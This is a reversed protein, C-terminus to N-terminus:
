RLGLQCAFAEVCFGGGARGGCGGWREGEGADGADEAARRVGDVGREGRGVERRECGCVRRRLGRPIWRLRRREGCSMTVRRWGGCGLLLGSGGRGGAERGKLIEAVRSLHIEFHIEAMGAARDGNRPAMTKLAGECPGLFGRGPCDSDGM